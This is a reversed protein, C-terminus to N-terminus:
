KGGDTAAADATTEKDFGALIGATLADDRRSAMLRGMETNWMSEFTEQGAGDTFPNDPVTKKMESVMMTYFLAAFERAAVEPRKEAVAPGLMADVQGTQVRAMAESYGTVTTM